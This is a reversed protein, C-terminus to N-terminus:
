WAGYKTYDQNGANETFSELNSNSAKEKYGVQSKAIDVIDPICSTLSVFAYLEIDPVYSCSVFESVEEYYADSVVIWEGQKNKIVEIKHENESLGLQYDKLYVYKEIVTVEVSVADYNIDVFDLRSVLYLMQASEMVKKHELEDNAIGVVSLKELKQTESRRLVDGRAEMYQMVVRKVDGEENAAAYGEFSPRALTVLMLVLAM